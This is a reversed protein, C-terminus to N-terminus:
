ISQDGLFEKDSSPPWKSRSSPVIPSRGKITNQDYPKRSKKKKTNISQPGLCPWKTFDREMLTWKPDSLMQSTAVHALPLTLYQMWGFWVIVTGVQPALREQRMQDRLRVASRSRLLCVGM